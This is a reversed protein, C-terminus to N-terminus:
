LRTDRLRKRVLASNSKVSDGFGEKSGRLVQEKEAETVGLGPYGKSSIKMACDYGDMFFVANGALLAKIAEEMDELKKVDAIGLSNNRVFELIQDPSVEWFHNVMKGIASDELMMNSVAVEIYVMLCDVKHGEGLKMPRILIDSCNELRKRLYAENKRLSVSIERKEEQVENQKENRKKNRKRNKKENEKEADGTGQMMESEGM